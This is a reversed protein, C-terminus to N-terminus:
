PETAAFVLVEAPDVEVGINDGPGQDGAERVRALISADLGSVVIDFLDVEGLSRGIQQRIRRQVRHRLDGLVLYARDSHFSGIPVM